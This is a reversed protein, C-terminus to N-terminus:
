LSRSLSAAAMCLEVKIRLCVNLHWGLLWATRVFSAMVHVSILHLGETVVALCCRLGPHVLILAGQQGGFLRNTRLIKQEQDM